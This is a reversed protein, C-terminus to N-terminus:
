FFRVRGVAHSAPGFFVFTFVITAAVKLIFGMLANTDLGLYSVLRPLSVERTQMDGPVLHGMLAYISFLLVISFLAYGTTRRLGELCLLYFISGVIVADYPVFILENILVPFVFSVYWGTAFGVAAALRDYWPLSTRATNRRAPFHLYVLAIATGMMPAMVQPAYVNLGFVRYLDAAWALGGATLGVALVPRLVRVIPSMPVDSSVTPSEGSPSDSMM